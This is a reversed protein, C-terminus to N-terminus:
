KEDNDEIEILPAESRAQEELKKRAMREKIAKVLDIVQKVFFALMILILIIGIINM